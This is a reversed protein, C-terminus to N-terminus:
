KLVHLEKYEPGKKRKEPTQPRFKSFNDEALSM